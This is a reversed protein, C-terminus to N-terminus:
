RSRSAGACAARSRGDVVLVDEVAVRDQRHEVETTTSRAPRRRSRQSYADIKACRPTADRHDVAGVPRQLEDIGLQDALEDAAELAAAAAIRPPRLIADTRHSPGRLHTVRERAASRRSRCSAPRARGRPRCRPQRQRSAPRFAFRAPENATSSCQRVAQRVDIRDAVHDARRRQRSARHLLPPARSGRARAQRRAAGASIIGIPM